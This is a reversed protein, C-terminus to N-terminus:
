AEQSYRTLIIRAADLTDIDEDSLFDSLEPAGSCQQQFDWISDAAGEALRKCYNLDEYFYNDRDLM